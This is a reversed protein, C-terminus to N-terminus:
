YDYIAKIYLSIKRPTISQSVFLKKKEYDNITDLNYVDNHSMILKGFLTFNMLVEDNYSRSALKHSTIHENQKLITMYKKKYNDLRAINEDNLANRMPISELSAVSVLSTSRAGFLKYFIDKITM